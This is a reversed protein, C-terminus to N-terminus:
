ALRIKVAGVAVTENQNDTTNQEGLLKRPEQIGSSSKHLLPPSVETFSFPPPYIMFYLPIYVQKRKIDKRVKWKM